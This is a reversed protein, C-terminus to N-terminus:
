FRSASMASILHDVCDSVWVSGKINIEKNCMTCKIKLCKPFFVSTGTGGGLLETTQPKLCHPCYFTISPVFPESESM